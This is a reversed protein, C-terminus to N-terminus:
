PRPTASVPEQCRLHTKSIGLLCLPQVSDGPEAKSSWILLLLKPLRPQFVAHGHIGGYLRSAQLLVLVLFTQSRKQKKSHNKWGYQLVM